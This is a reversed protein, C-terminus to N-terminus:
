TAVEGPQRDDVAYAREVTWRDGGPERRVDIVRDPTRLRFGPAPGLGRDELRRGLVEVPEAEGGIVVARPTEEARGGSLFRIAVRQPRSAWLPLVPTWVVYGAGVVALVQGTSLRPVLAVALLAALVRAGSFALDYLSFVRGRFRDPISEQVMTDIPIKRWPYSIGLAFSLLLITVSDVAPAVLLCAAGGVAFAVAVIRAKAMRNEFWGVTLMGAVVGAGGAAIIRGYSAVGQHFQQKFVVVSLVSVIGFLVQDFAASVVGGIAPPTALLRRAGRWLDRPVQTLRDHAVGAPSTSRLDHAIRTALWAAVPWMVAVAVLLVGDGAAGAVQTALVLGAFTCVTGAASALSNAVLLDTEGVVLPMVAGATSLYFRNLSVVVLTPVYLIWGNGHLPILALACAARILPTALLIRRRSWRDILVGAFPGVISFPIVLVAFARAVGAATGQQDPNLFVLRDILFAQFVGDGFQSLLRAQLLRAFDPSRLAERARTVSGSM